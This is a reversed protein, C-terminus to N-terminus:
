FRELAKAARAAIREHSEAIRALAHRTDEDQAIRAMERYEAAHVSARAHIRGASQATFRVPTLTATM